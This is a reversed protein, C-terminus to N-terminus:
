FGNKPLMIGLYKKAHKLKWVVFVAWALFILNQSALKKYALQYINRVTLWKSLSPKLIFYDIFSSFPLM